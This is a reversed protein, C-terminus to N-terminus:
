FKFNKIFYFFVCIANGPKRVVVPTKIIIGFIIGLCDFIGWMASTKREEGRRLNHQMTTDTSIVYIHKDIEGSFQNIIAGSVAPFLYLIFTRFFNLVGALFLGFRLKIKRLIRSFILGFLLSGAAISLTFLGGIQLASLGKEKLFFPLFFNVLAFSFSAFFTGILVNRINKKKIEEKRM